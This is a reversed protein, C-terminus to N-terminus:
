AARSDGAERAVTFLRVREAVGKLPVPEVERIDVSV